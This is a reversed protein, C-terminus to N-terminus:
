QNYRASSTKQPGSIFCHISAQYSSKNQQGNGVEIYCFGKGDSKKSKDVGRLEAAINAAM